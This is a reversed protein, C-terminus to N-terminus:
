WPSLSRGTLGPLSTVRHVGSVISWRSRALAADREDLALHVAAMAFNGFGTASRVHLSSEHTMTDDL